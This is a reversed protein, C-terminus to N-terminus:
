ALLPWTWEWIYLLWRKVYYTWTNGAPKYNTQVYTYGLRSHKVWFSIGRLHFTPNKFGLRSMCLDNFCTTVARSGFVRCYTHTDRIRPSSWIFPHGTDCYTHCALSGESSLQWSHRAYTLIQLGKGAITIDWNSHFARSHSSLGRVFLWVYLYTVMASPPSCVKLRRDTGRDKFMTVDENHSAQQVHSLPCRPKQPKLKSLSNLHICTKSSRVNSNENRAILPTQWM